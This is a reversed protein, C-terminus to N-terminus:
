PEGSYEQPHGYANKDEEGKVERPHFQLVM